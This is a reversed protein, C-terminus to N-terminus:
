TFNWSKLIKLIGLNGLNQSATISVYLFLYYNDNQDTFVNTCGTNGTGGLAFQNTILNQATLASASVVCFVFALIKHLAM